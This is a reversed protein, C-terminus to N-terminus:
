EAKARAEEAKVAADMAQRSRSLESTMEATLLQQVVRCTKHLMQLPKDGHEEHPPARFSLVAKMNSQVAESGTRLTAITSKGRLVVQMTTSGDALLKKIVFLCKLKVNVSPECMRNALWLVIDNAGSPKISRARTAALVRHMEEAKILHETDSTCEKLHPEIDSPVTANNPVFDFKVSFGGPGGDVWEHGDVNQVRQRRRQSPPPAGEAPRPQPATAAPAPAAGAPVFTFAWPHSASKCLEKMTEWTMNPEQEKSWITSGGKFAVLHMGVHVRAAESAGGRTIKKVILEPSCVFGAGGESVKVVIAGAIAASAPAAAPVPEPAVTTGSLAFNFAWPHATNKCTDKFEGWTTGAPITKGQFSVLTAGVVVGAAESASGANVKKVRMSNDCVFGAGGEAVTVSLRSRDTGTPATQAPAPAPAVATLTVTPTPTPGPAPTPALAPAPSPAPAPAPAPSSAPALESAHKAAAFTFAWPHATNQCTQKFDAWTTGAPILKAQFSVLRAGLPVGAAESAGGATIRKVRLSADCVFGAGGDNVSVSWSPSFTFCWPYSSQKCLDKFAAWAMGETDHLQPGAQFATLQMGLQVGAVESAGGATLKKVTLDPNCVFGAGGEDVTVMIEGTPPSGPVGEEIEAKKAAAKAAAAAKEAAAREAAAKEAAAKEAAAKEAAAREAAAKEAAAKEAAAKEAAAKEAAAKEAAAKEAAAREVAIKEAAAPKAPTGFLPEDDSEDSLFLGSGATSRAEQAIAAAKEAAAKEAAAKEAAAKEAAAREAAAKEAAAKEAAAKEAAAKEAAAKEAAAKEAAAKEAAAKEAAAKEAAAKEAAAKEAAAKEAAAKAAAAKEAAAKEAAAKEAAAKEAAAAAQAQAAAVKAEGEAARKAAAETEEAKFTPVADAPADELVVAGTGTKKSTWGGAFQVRVVGNEVVKEDLVEIITGKELTGAKASDMEFGARIVSRKTCTYRKPAAVPSPTPAAVEATEEAKFTPVADAPADELVVAGTGTKKSTWGGAFQVRVVGNEVVKEDLVEIITGKELTGAKASDMEFGARIVSRKTCTYRKPAAVPSPAPATSFSPAAATAVIRSPTTEDDSDDSFLGSGVAAALQASKPAPVSAAARAAATSAAPMAAPSDAGTFRTFTAATGPPTEELALLGTGTVKSVWGGEFHVRTTGKANEREEIVAVVVGVELVGAKDSDLDFGSRIVSRKKCVYCKDAATNSSALAVAAPPSDAVAAAETGPLPCDAPIQKSYMFNAHGGPCKDSAAFQEFVAKCKKCYRANAMDTIPAGAVAAAPKKEPTTATAAAAASVTVVVAADRPLLLMMGAFDVKKARKLSTLAAGAVDCHHEEAVEMIQEFTCSGGHKALTALIIDNKAKDMMEQPAHAVLSQSLSLSVVGESWALAALM